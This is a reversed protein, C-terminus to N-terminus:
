DNLTESVIYHVTRDEGIVAPDFGISNLWSQKNLRNYISTTEQIMSHLQELHNLIRETRKSNQANAAKRKKKSLKGRRGILLPKALEPPAKGFREEDVRLEKPNIPTPRTPVSGLIGSSQSILIASQLLSVKPPTIRSRTITLGPSESSNM